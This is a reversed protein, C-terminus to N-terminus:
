VPPEPTVTHFYRNHYHAHFSASARHQLQISLNSAIHIHTHAQYLLVHRDFRSLLLQGAEACVQTAPTLKAVCICEIGNFKGNFKGSTKGNLRGQCLCHVSMCRLKVPANADSVAKGNIAGKIPVLTRAGIGQRTANEVICAQM